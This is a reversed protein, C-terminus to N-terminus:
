AVRNFRDGFLVYLAAIIVALTRALDTVPIHALEALISLILLVIVAYILRTIM